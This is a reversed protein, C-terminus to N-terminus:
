RAPPVTFQGIRILMQLLIAVMLGNLLHWLFHTGLAFSACIDRDLTRLILSLLFVGTAALIWPAGPHNRRWSLAAFVILALLAPAYQGSGNLPDPGADPRGEGMALFVLTLGAAAVVGIAWVVIRRPPMGGIHHMATLVFLAVFTWIPLTDALGAWRTAFTHFLFSGIGILGALTILLWVILATLGRARATAAAWLAAAIFSLNTAANVPEAWFATTTRECYIDVAQFWDM